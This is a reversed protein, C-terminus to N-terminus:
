EAFDVELSFRRKRLKQLAFLDIQLKDGDLRADVAWGRQTFLKQTLSERTEDNFHGADRLLLARNKATELAYMAFTNQQITQIAQGRAQNLNHLGALFIVLLSVTLSTEILTLGSKKM